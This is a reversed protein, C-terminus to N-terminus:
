GLKQGTQEHWTILPHCLPSKSMHTPSFRFIVIGGCKPYAADNREKYQCPTVNVVLEVPLRGGVAFTSLTGGLSLM